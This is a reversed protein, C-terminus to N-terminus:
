AFQLSKTKDRIRDTTQMQKYIFLYRKALTLISTFLKM